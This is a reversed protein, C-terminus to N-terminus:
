RAKKPFIASWLTMSRTSYRATLRMGPRLQDELMVYRSNRVFCLSVRYVRGTDPHDPTAAAFPDNETPLQSIREVTALLRGKTELTSGDFEVNVEAGVKLLARDWELISSSIRLSREKPVLRFVTDGFRVASAAYLSLGDVFGPAPATIQLSDSASPPSSEPSAQARPAEPRSSAGTPRVTAIITGRDVWQGEAVLVKDVIGTFPSQLDVVPPDSEILGRRAATVPIPAFAAPIALLALLSSAWVIFRIPPPVLAVVIGHPDGDSWADGAMM